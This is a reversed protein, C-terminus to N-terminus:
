KVPKVVISRWLSSLKTNYYPQLRNKYYNYCVYRKDTVAIKFNIQSEVLKIIDVGLYSFDKKCGKALTPGDIYIIDIDEMEPATDYYLGRQNEFWDLRVEELNLSIYEKLDEPVNSSFLKFYEPSQEYSIVKGKVGFKRHNYRLIESIFITSIGMGYEVVIKPKMKIILLFLHFFRYATWLNTTKKSITKALDGVGFLKFLFSHGYTIMVHGIRNFFSVKKGVSKSRLINSKYIALYEEKTIPKDVLAKEDLKLQNYNKAM